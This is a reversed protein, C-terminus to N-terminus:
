KKRGFLNFSRGGPLPVSKRDPVTYPFVGHQTLLELLKDSTHAHAFELEEATIGVCLLLAYREGLFEFHAPAKSPHAFLVARLTRDGFFDGIDMTQGAELVADCTYCALRAIFDAAVDLESRVCIMLEYNGFSSKLQGADSGTMEATVYTNGPVYNPFPIVDASGGADRLEFPITAHYVYEGPEGLIGKLAEERADWVTFWEDDAPKDSNSV